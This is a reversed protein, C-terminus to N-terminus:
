EQLYITIAGDANELASSPYVRYLWGYIEVSYFDSDDVSLELRKVCDRTSFESSAEGGTISTTGVIEGEANRVIVQNSWQSINIEGTDIWTNCADGDAYQDADVRSVLSVTLDRSDPHNDQWNEWFMTGVLALTIISAILATTSFLFSKKVDM